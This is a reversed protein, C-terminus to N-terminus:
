VWVLVFVVPYVGFIYSMVLHRLMCECRIIQYNGTCKRPQFANLSKMRWDILFCGPQTWVRGSRFDASQVSFPLSSASRANQGYECWMCAYQSSVDLLHKSKMSKHFVVRPRQIPCRLHIQVELLAVSDGLCELGLPAVWSQPSLWTGFLLLLEGVVDDVM